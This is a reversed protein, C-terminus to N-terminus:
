TSRWLCGPGRNSRCADTFPERESMVLGNWVASFYRINWLYLRFIQWTGQEDQFFAQPARWYRMQLALLQLTVCSKQRRLDFDIHAKIIYCESDLVSKATITNLLWVTLDGSTHFSFKKGELTYVNIIAVQRTANTVLPSHLSHKWLWKSTVSANWWGARGKQWRYSGAWSCEQM